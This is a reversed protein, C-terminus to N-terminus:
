SKTNLAGLGLGQIRPTERMFPSIAYAKKENLKAEKGIWLPVCRTHFM